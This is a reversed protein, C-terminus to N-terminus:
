NKAGTKSNKKSPGDSKSKPNAAPVGATKDQEALGKGAPTATATKADNFFKQIKAPLNGSRYDDIFKGYKTSYEQDIQDLLNTRQEPKLVLLTRDLWPSINTRAPHTAWDSVTVNASPISAAGSGDTTAKLTAGSKAMVITEDNFLEEHAKVFAYAVENGSGLLVGFSIPSGFAAALTEYNNKPDATTALQKYKNAESALTRVFENRLKNSADNALPLYFLERHESVFDKASKDGKNLLENFKALTGFSSTSVLADLKAPPNDKSYDFQESKVYKNFFTYHTENFPSRGASEWLPYMLGKSLLDRRIKDSTTSNASALYKVIDNTKTPDVAYGGHLLSGMNQYLFEWVMMKTGAGKASLTPYTASWIGEDVSIANYLLKQNEKNVKLASVVYDRQQEPTWQERPIPLKDGHGHFTKVPNIVWDRITGYWFQYGQGATLSKEEKVEGTSTIKSVNAYLWHNGSGSIAQTAAELGVLLSLTVAASAIGSGVRSSGITKRLWNSSEAYPDGRFAQYSRTASLYPVASYPATAIMALYGAFKLSHERAYEATKVTARAVARIPKKVIEPTRKAIAKGLVSVDQALMGGSKEEVIKAVRKETTEELAGANQQFVRVQPLLEPSSFSRALGISDTRQWTSRFVQRLRDADEAVHISHIDRAYVEVSDETIGTAVSLRLKKEALLWEAETIARDLAPMEGLQERLKEPVKAGTSKVREIGDIIDVRRNFKDQLLKYEAEIETLLKDADVFTKIRESVAEKVLSDLSKEQNRPDQVRSLFDAAVANGDKKYEVRLSSAVRAVIERGPAILSELLDNPLIGGERLKTVFSAYEKPEVKGVHKMFIVSTDGVLSMNSVFLKGVNGLERLNPDLIKLREFDQFLRIYDSSSDMLAIVEPRTCYNTLAEMFKDEQIITGRTFTSEVWKKTEYFDTSAAQIPNKSHPYLANLEKEVTEIEKASVDLYKSRLSSVDGFVANFVAGAENESLTSGKLVKDLIESAKSGGTIKSLESNVYDKFIPDKKLKDSFEKGYGDKLRESLYRGLQAAEPTTLEPIQGFIARKSAAGGTKLGRGAAELEEGVQEKVSSMPGGTNLDPAGTNKRRM